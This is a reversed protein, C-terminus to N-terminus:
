SNKFLGVIITSTWKVLSAVDWEAFLVKVFRGNKSVSVRCIHYMVLVNFLSELADCFVMLNSVKLLVNLIKAVHLLYGLWSKCLEIKKRILLYPFPEHYGKKLHLFFQALLFSTKQSVRGVVCVCVCVKQKSWDKPSQSEWPNLSTVFLVWSFHKRGRAFHKRIFNRCFMSKESFFLKRFLFSAGILIILRVPSALKNSPLKTRRKHLLELHSNTLKNLVPHYQGWLLM